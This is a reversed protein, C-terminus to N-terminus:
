EKFGKIVNFTLLLHFIIMHIVVIITEFVSPMCVSFVVTRPFYWNMFLIFEFIYLLDIIFLTSWKM